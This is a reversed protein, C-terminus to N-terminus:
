RPVAFDQSLWSWCRTDFAINSKLRASAIASHLPMLSEVSGLVSLVRSPRPTSRSTSCLLASIRREDLSKQLSSRSKSTISRSSMTLAQRCFSAM